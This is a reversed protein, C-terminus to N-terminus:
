KNDNDNDNEEKILGEEKMDKIAQKLAKKEKRITEHMQILILDFYDLASTTTTTITKM